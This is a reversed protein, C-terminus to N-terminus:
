QLMRAAVENGMVSVLGLVKRRKRGEGGEESRQEWSEGGAWHDQKTQEALHSMIQRHEKGRTTHNLAKKQWM